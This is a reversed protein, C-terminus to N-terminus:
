NLSQSVIFVDLCVESIDSVHAPTCPPCHGAEHHPDPFRISGTLGEATDEEEGTNGMRFGAMM